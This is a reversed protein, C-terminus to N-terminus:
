KGGVGLSQTKSLVAECILEAAVELIIKTCPDPFSAPLLTFDFNKSIM